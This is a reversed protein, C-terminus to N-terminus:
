KPQYIRLELEKIASAKRELDKRLDEISQYLYEYHRDYSMRREVTSGGIVYGTGWSGGSVVTHEGVRSVPSGGESYFGVIVTRTNNLDRVYIDGGKNYHAMCSIYNNGLFSDDNFGYRGNDRADCGIFTVANGDARGAFFGDYGNELAHCNEVWSGSVDTSTGEINGWLDFGKWYFGKATCNVLRIRGNSQFGSADGKITKNQAIVCVNEVVFGQSGNLTRDFKFGTVGDPFVFMTSPNAWISGNDGVIRVPNTILITRAMEYRGFPAYILQSAGNPISALFKDMSDSNASGTQSPRVGIGVSQINVGQISVIPAAVPIPAQGTPASIVVTEGPDGKEGKDGKDGKISEGDKGDRGPVGQFGQVGQIGIGDKGDKGAPGKM